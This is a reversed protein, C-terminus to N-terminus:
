LHSIFLFPLIWYGIDISILSAHESCIFHYRHVGDCCRLMVSCQRTEFAENSTEMFTHSYKENENGNTSPLLQHFEKMRYAIRCANFYRPFFIISVSAGAIKIYLEWSSKWINLGFFCESVCPILHFHCEPDCIQINTCIAYAFGFHFVSRNETQKKKRKVTM